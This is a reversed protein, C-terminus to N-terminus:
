YNLTIPLTYQARIPLGKQMGPTWPASNLLVRIAENNLTANIGQIIKPQVVKGEQDVIFSIIIKGRKEAEVNPVKFNDSIYKYFNAQGGPPIPNEESNTFAIKEGEENIRFGSVLNGNSYIEELSTSNNNDIKTWKGTKFGNKYEGKIEFNPTKKQYFGNGDIVTQEYNENWYNTIRYNTKKTNSDLYEGEEKKNGNEYWEKNEGFFAGNRHNLIQKKNGNEYTYIHEGIFETKDRNETFYEQVLKNSNTYVLVKYENADINYKKIVKKYFYDNSSTERKLSDLLIVKDYPTQAYLFQFCFIFLLVCNKM